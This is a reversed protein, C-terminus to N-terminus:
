ANEESVKEEPVEKTREEKKGTIAGKKLYMFLYIVITGVSLIGAQISGQQTFFNSQLALLFLISSYILALRLANQTEGLIDLFRKKNLVFGILMLILTCIIYSWIESVPAFELLLELLAKNQSINHNATKAIFTPCANWLIIASLITFAINYGLFCLRGMAGKINVPNNNKKYSETYKMNNRWNSINLM